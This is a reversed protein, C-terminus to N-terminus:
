PSIADIAILYPGVPTSKLGCQATLYDTTPKLDDVPPFQQEQLPLLISRSSGAQLFLLPHKLTIDTNRFPNIPLSIAKDSVSRAIVPPFPYSVIIFISMSGTAKKFILHYPM